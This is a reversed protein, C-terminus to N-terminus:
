PLLTAGVSLRDPLPLVASAAEVGEVDGGGVRAGVADGLVAHIPAVARGGAQEAGGFEGGGAAVEAV